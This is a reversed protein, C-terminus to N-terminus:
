FSYYQLLLITLQNFFLERENDNVKEIPESAKIESESPEPLMMGTPEVTAKEKPTLWTDVM